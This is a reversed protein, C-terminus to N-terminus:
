FKICYFELTELAETYKIIATKLSKEAEAACIYDWTSEISPILGNNM